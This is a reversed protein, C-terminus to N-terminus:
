EQISSISSQRLLKKKDRKEFSYFSSATSTQKISTLSSDLSSHFDDDDYKNEEEYIM